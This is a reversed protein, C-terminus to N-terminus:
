RGWGARRWDRCWRLYAVVDDPEPPTDSHGYATVLRFRLYAEEPVPLLPWRHWWGPRALRLLQRVATWWLVPRRIVAGAAPLWSRLSPLPEVATM